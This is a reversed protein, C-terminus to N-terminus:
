IDNCSIVDIRGANSITLSCTRKGALTLTIGVAGFGNSTNRPMGRTDFQFRSPTSVIKVKPFDQSLDVQHIIPDTTARTCNNDTDTNQFITYNGDKNVNGNVINVAHRV